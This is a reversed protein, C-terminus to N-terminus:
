GTTDLVKDENKVLFDFAINVLENLKIKKKKAIVALDRHLEKSTRVNFVGRYFRNPEKELEMCTKLYDDVAEVFAHELEDVSNAEFTVLDNIGFIRGHLLGDKASYEVTGWYDKHKLYDAM